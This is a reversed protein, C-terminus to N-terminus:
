RPSKGAGEVSHLANLLANIVEPSLQEAPRRLQQILITVGCNIGGVEVGLLCRGVVQPPNIMGDFRNM